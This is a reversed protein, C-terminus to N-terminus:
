VPGTQCFKSNVTNNTSSYSRTELGNVLLSNFGVLESEGGAIHPEQTSCRIKICDSSSTSCTSIPYVLIPVVTIHVSIHAWSGSRQYVSRRMLERIDKLSSLHLVEVYPQIVLISLIDKM